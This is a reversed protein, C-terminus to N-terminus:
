PQIRAFECPFASTAPTRSPIRASSAGRLRAATRPSRSLSAPPAARAVIAASRRTRPSADRRSRGLCRAPPRARRLAPRAARRPSPPHRSPRCHPSSPQTPPRPILSCTAPAERRRSRRDVRRGCGQIVPTRVRRALDLPPRVPRGTCSRAPAPARIRSIAAFIRPQSAPKAPKPPGHAGSEASVGAFDWTASHPPHRPALRPRRPRM